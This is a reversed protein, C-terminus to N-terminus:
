KQENDIRICPPFYLVDHSPVCCYSFLALHLVSEVENCVTHVIMDEARTM